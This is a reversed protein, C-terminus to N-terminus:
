VTRCGCYCVVFACRSFCCCCVFLCVFVGVGFAGVPQVPPPPLLLLLLLLVKM